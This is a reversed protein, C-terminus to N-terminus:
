EDKKEGEVGEPYAHYKVKAKHGSPFYNNCRPDLTVSAVDLPPNPAVFVPTGFDCKLPLFIETPYCQSSNCFDTNANIFPAVM